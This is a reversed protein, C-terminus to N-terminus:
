MSRGSRSGFESFRHGDAVDTSLFDEAEAGVWLGTPVQVRFGLSGGDGEYGEYGERHSRLSASAAWESGQVRYGSVEGSRKMETIETGETTLEEPGCGLGVWSVQLRCGSSRHEDAAM